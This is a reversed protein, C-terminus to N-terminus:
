KININNKEYWASEIIHKMKEVFGDTEDSWVYYYQFGFSEALTKKRQDTYFAKEISVKGFPQKWNSNLSKPHFAIGHYEIIINLNLITFDYFFLSLDDKISYEYNKWLIEDKPIGLFICHEYIPNLLVISEKSYRKGPHKRVKRETYVIKAQEVDGNCKRLAWDFSSSDKRSNIEDINPNNQLSEQWKKQRTEWIEMGKEEGFKEICKSLSFTSQSISIRNIAEDESFGKDLWYEKRKPNTRNRDEEPRALNKYANKSQLDSIIRKAYEENYGRITWFVVRWRSCEKIDLIEQETLLNFYHKKALDYAVPELYKRTIYYNPFYPKKNRNREKSLLLTEYEQNMEETFM